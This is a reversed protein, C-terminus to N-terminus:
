GRIVVTKIRGKDLLLKVRYASKGNKSPVKEVSLVKGGYQSKAQKAADGKSIEAWAGISLSIILIATIFKSIWPKNM